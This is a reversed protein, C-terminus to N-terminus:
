ENFSSDVIARGSSLQVAVEVLWRRVARKGFREASVQLLAEVEDSSSRARMVLARGKRTLCLRLIRRNGPDPNRAILQRTLLRSITESASQPALLSLQALDAGSLGPYAGIMTLASYQARTLDFVALRREVAQGVAANTQRLLYSLYGSAGRKGEGVEPTPPAPSHQPM